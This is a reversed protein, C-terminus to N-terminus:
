CEVASRRQQVFGTSGSHYSLQRAWVMTGGRLFAFGRCVMTAPVTACLSTRPCGSKEAVGWPSSPTSVYVLAADVRLHIYGGGHQPECGVAKINETLIGGVVKGRVLCEGGSLDPRAKDHFVPRDFLHFHKGGGALGAPAAQDPMTGAAARQCYRSALTARADCRDDVPKELHSWRRAIVHFGGRWM